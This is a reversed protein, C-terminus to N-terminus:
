VAKEAQGVTINSDIEREHPRGTGFSGCWKLAKRKM